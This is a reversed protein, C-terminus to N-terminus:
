LQCRAPHHCDAEKDTVTDVLAADACLLVCLLLVNRSLVEAAPM